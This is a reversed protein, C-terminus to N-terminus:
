GERTSCHQFDFSAFVTAKKEWLDASGDGVNGTGYVAIKM